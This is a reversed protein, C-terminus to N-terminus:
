DGYMQHLSNRQEVASGAGLPQTWFLQGCNHPEPHYFSESSLSFNLNRLPWVAHHKCHTASLETQSSLTRVSYLVPEQCIVCRSESVKPRSFLQTTSCSDKKKKTHSGMEVVICSCVPKTIEFNNEVYIACTYDKTKLPFQNDTDSLQSFSTSVIM